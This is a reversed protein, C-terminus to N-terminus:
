ASDDYEHREPHQLGLRVHYHESPPQFEGRPAIDYDLYGPDLKMKWTSDSIVLTGGIEILIWLGGRRPMCSSIDKPGLSYVQAVLLNLGPKITAGLDYVDM